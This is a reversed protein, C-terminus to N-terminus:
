HRRFLSLIRATPQMSLLISATEHSFDLRPNACGVTQIITFVHPDPSSSLNGASIAIARFELTRAHKLNIITIFSYDFAFFIFFEHQLSCPCFSRHLRMASIWDHIPAVLQKSSLLVHPDPSSSLNGASIAIARFELTLAHKLDIITIFSYDFAFFIFFERQLSCPCFSRHLRMASIWDHIPAVLQKSSLLFM